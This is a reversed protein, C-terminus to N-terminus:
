FMASFCPPPESIVYSIIGAAIALGYPMPEGAVIKAKESGLLTVPASITGPTLPTAERTAFKTFIYRAVLYACGLVGGAIVILALMFPIEAPPFLLSLTGILKVDGGGLVDYRSFMGLLFILLIATILGIWLDGPRSILILLIACIAIIGVIQDPIIRHSFDSVAAYCICLLVATWLLIQFSIEIMIGLMYTSIIKYLTLMLWFTAM